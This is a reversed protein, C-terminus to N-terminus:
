NLLFLTNGGFSTEYHGAHYVNVLEDFSIGRAILNPAQSSVNNSLLSVLLIM